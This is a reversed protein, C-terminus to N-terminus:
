PGNCNSRMEDPPRSVVMKYGSQQLPAPFLTQFYDTRAVIMNIDSIDVIDHMEMKKCRLIQQGSAGSRPLGKEDTLVLGDAEPMPDIIQKPPHANRRNHATHGKGDGITNARTQFHPVGQQTQRLFRPHGSEQSMLQGMGMPEAMLAGARHKSIALQNRGFLTQGPQCSPKIAILCFLRVPLSASPSVSFIQNFIIQQPTNKGPMFAQALHPHHGLLRSHNKIGRTLPKCAAVLM